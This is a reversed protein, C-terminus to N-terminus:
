MRYKKLFVVFNVRSIFNTILIFYQNRTNTVGSTYLSREAHAEPDFRRILKAVETM